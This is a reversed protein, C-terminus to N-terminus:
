LSLVLILLLKFDIRILVKIILIKVRTKKCKDDSLMEYIYKLRLNSSINIDFRVIDVLWTPDWILVQDLNVLLIKLIARYM